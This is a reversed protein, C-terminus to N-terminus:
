HDGKCIDVCTRSIFKAADSLLYAIMYAVDEPKGVGYRGIAKMDNETYNYKEQYKEYIETAIMGPAVNNIRIDKPALELALCMMMANMAAKAASYATQTARCTKAAISSVGVISFGANFRGRRTLCRILELYAYYSVLMINHANEYKTQQLPRDESIGASHVFGDFPGEASCIEKIKDEITEINSLDLIYYSHNNGELQSLTEQLKDERRAILVCTAGLKSLVIATKKGIGSSAGTILIKRGTLLMPNM